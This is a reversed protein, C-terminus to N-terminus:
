CDEPKDYPLLENGFVIKVGHIIHKCDSPKWLQAAPRFYTSTTGRKKGPGIIPQIVSVAPVVNEPKGQRRGAPPQRRGSVSNTGAPGPDKFFFTSGRSFSEPPKFIQANVNEKCKKYNVNVLRICRLMSRKERLLVIEMM